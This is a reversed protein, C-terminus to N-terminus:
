GILERCFERLGAKEGVAALVQNLFADDHKAFRVGLQVAAAARKGTWDDPSTIFDTQVFSLVLSFVIILRTWIEGTQNTEETPFMDQFIQLLLYNMWFLRLRKKAFADYFELNDRWSKIESTHFLVDELRSAFDPRLSPNQRRMKLVSRVAALHVEESVPAYSIGGAEEEDIYQMIHHEAHHGSFSEVKWVFADCKRIRDALTLNEDRVIEMLHARVIGATGKIHEERGQVRLGDEWSAPVEKEVFTLPTNRLLVQEAAAPCSVCVSRFAEGGRFHYLVRPYTRCTMSLNKEETRRQISCWGDNRLFPCRKGAGMRIVAIPRGDEKEWAVAHALMERFEGDREKHYRELAADDLVIDWWGICCSDPCLAGTCIFDEFDDPQSVLYVRETGM